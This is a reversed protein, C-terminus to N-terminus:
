VWHSSGQMNEISLVSVADEEEGEKGMMWFSRFLTLHTVNTDGRRTASAKSFYVNRANIDIHCLALPLVQLQDVTGLLAELRKRVAGDEINEKELIKSLRPFLHYNVVGASTVNVGLSCHGIRSGVQSAISIDESLSINKVDAGQIYESIYAFVVNKPKVAHTSPVISELLGRALAVRTLDIENDKLQM